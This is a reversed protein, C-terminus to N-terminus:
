IFGHILCPEYENTFYKLINMKKSKPKEIILIIDMKHRGMMDDDDDDNIIIITASSSSSLLTFECAKM